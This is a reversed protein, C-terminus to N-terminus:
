SKMISCVLSMEISAFSKEYQVSTYSITQLILLCSATISPRNFSYTKCRIQDGGMQEGPGLNYESLIEDWLSISFFGLNYRKYASNWSPHFLQTMHGQFADYHVSM